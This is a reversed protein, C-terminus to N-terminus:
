ELRLQGRGLIQSAFKRQHGHDLKSSLNFPLDPPKQDIRTPNPKIVATAGREAVSQRLKDADYATDALVYDPKPL